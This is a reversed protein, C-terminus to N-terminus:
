KVGIRMFRTYLELPLAGSFLVSSMPTKSEFDELSSFKNVHEPIDLDNGQLIVLKGKPIKNYWEDWPVIHECSTNVITDATIKLPITEDKGKSYFELKDNTFKLTQIDRTIAKFRWNDVLYDLNLKDAISECSPDADISVIRQIDLKSDELMLYSLTGYWGACVYVNGLALDLQELESILWQKSHIQGESLADAFVGVTQPWEFICRRVSDMFPFPQLMDLGKLVRNYNQMSM